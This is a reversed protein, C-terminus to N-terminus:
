EALLADLRARLDAAGAFLIGTLGIARAGEVHGPTDDVFICEEPRHGLREAALHFIRADPKAVGVRASSIVADFCGDLRLLRLDAEVRTTANTILGTRLRPRMAAVLEVMESVVRGTLATWASVAADAAAGHEALAARVAKRWAADDIEGCVARAM